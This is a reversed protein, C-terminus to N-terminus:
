FDLFTLAINCFEMGALFNFILVCLLSEGRETGVVPGIAKM